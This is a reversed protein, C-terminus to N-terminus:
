NLQKIKSYLQKAKQTRETKSCHVIAQLKLQAILDQLDKIAQIIGQVSSLMIFREGEEPANGIELSDIIKRLYAKIERELTNTQEHFFERSAM